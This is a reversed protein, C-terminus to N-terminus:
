VNNVYFIKLSVAGKYPLCLKVIRFFCRTPRKSRALNNLDWIAEHGQSKKSIKQLYKKPYTPLNIPHKKLLKQSIGCCKTVVACQLVKCYLGRYSNAALPPLSLGQNAFFKSHKSAQILTALKCSM